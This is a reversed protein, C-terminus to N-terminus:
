LKENVYQVFENWWSKLCFPREIREASLMSITPPRKDLYGKGILDNDTYTLKGVLTGKKLPTPYGKKNTTFHVTPKKHNYRRVITLRESAVATVENKQGNIIRASSKDYSEGKKVLTQVTFQQYIYSMFRSTATFRANEDKDAHDINLLVTILRMGRQQITGVFSAGGKDSSGTKLGDVGARFAPMDKLMHNSSTLTMGAFNTTAKKTIELVEPYDLILRRAIIAIDYASLKNEDDKNSGPYFHEEGLVSNKLGSANVITANKIGWQQLKAKMLDVFKKESGAVKEALAIAPSDASAILSTELLEKVTYKRAELPVNNTAPNVTLQYPYNSIDVSTQLTFKGQHIAEYVLYATLLKTISAVEVPQNADKEYLIKGTTADVAIAHKAGVDFNDAWVIPTLTFLLTTVLTMIYKKMTIGKQSNIIITDYFLSLKM